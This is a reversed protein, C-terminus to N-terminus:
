DNVIVAEGAYRWHYGGATQREGKCCKVLGSVDLTLERSVDRMSSYVVGTEVCEIARARANNSGLNIQRLHEREVANDHSWRKQASVKMKVCAEASKPKGIQADRIKKKTEESRHTGYQNHNVGSYKLKRTESLKKKFDDSRTFGANVYGGTALNYGFDRNNTKYKAILDIEIQEAENQSLNTFLIEHRFGDWGYKKIAAYFLPCRQYGHGNSWRLTPKQSTSGIYKKGNVRNEHMYVCWNTTKKNSTNEM